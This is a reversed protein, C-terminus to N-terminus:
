TSTSLIVRTNAYAVAVSLSKIATELEFYTALGLAQLRRSTELIVDLDSDFNFITVPKSVNSVQSMMNEFPGLGSLAAPFVVIACDVNADALITTILEIAFSLHDSVFPFMPGWDVPNSAFRPSLKSLRQTTIDTFNAIALGAETAADALLVGGAGSASIIALRNGKPLPQSAFVRPIEWFEQWGNLRIVGVQRFASDYIQDDGALSGTHSSVARAGAKSRGPKLILVPKVATARRAAEMFRPGDKIDELHMAIVKTDPDDALYNLIDVENVDCKNGFDCCKSIPYARGGMPHCGFSLLGSQSCYAIGGKLFGRYGIYSTNTMLGNATNVVGLTNPGIIRMGARRAIEVAQRQLAAGEEGAEAFGESGIIVAKVNKQACEEIVQPVMPPPIVVMALDIPETVQDLGSYVRLGMVETLSPNIPYVKGTFGFDLMNKITCYGPGMDQKLSGFVAVSAPEFFPLLDNEKNRTISTKSTVAM